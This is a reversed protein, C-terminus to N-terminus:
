RDRAEGYFQLYQGESRLIGLGLLLSERANSDSNCRYFKRSSLSLFVPSEEGRARSSGPELFRGRASVRGPVWCCDRSTSIGVIESSVV